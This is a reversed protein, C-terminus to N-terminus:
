GCRAAGGRSWLGGPQRVWAAMRLGTGRVGGGCGEAPLRVRRRCSRPPLVMGLAARAPCWRRTGRAAGWGGSACREGHPSKRPEATAGRGRAGGVPHSGAADGRGSEAAAPLAGVGPASAGGRSACARGGPTGRQAGSILRTRPRRGPHVARPAARQPSAASALGEGPAWLSGPVRADGTRQPPGLGPLPPPVWVEAVQEPALWPREQSAGAGEGGECGCRWPGLGPVGAPAVGRCPEESAM